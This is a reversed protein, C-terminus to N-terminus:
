KWAKERYFVMFYEFGSIYAVFISFWLLIKGYDVFNVALLLIAVLQLTTKVKGLFFAPIVIGKNVMVSRVWTVLMERSVILFVEFPSIYHKSVFATLVSVTFIKDVAPDLLEGHKTVDNSLRAVIGDLYDSIIALLVLVGSILYKDNLIFYMIFPILALRSLTILNALGISM